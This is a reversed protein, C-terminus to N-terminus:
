IQSNNKHSVRRGNQGNVLYEELMLLCCLGSGFGDPRQAEPFHSYSVLVIYNSVTVLKTELTGPDKKSRTGQNFLDATPHQRKLNLLFDRLLTAIKETDILADTRGGEPFAAM